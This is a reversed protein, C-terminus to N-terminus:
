TLLGVRKARSIVSIIDSAESSDYLNCYQFESLNSELPRDGVGRRAQHLLRIVYDSSTTQYHRLRIVYDSSSMTQYYERVYEASHVPGVIIYYYIKYFPSSSQSGQVQFSTQFMIQYSLINHLLYRHSATLHYYGNRIFKQTECHLFLTSYFIQRDRLNEFKCVHQQLLKFFPHPRTM